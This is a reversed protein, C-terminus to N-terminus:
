VKSSAIDYYQLLIEDETLLNQPIRDGVLIIDAFNKDSYCQKFGARVAEVRVDKLKGRPKRCVELYLKFEKLLAKTRLKELDVDDEINALRWTGNENQIFNEELLVNLGPIQDGKRIGNLAKIFNPYIDQYTQPNNRLENKLWEIGNAEDSVMIGMPVFDPAKLKKEEYEAAQTATFFMGDREAYREHLGQQFEQADMPIAFGKQVYYSILRDFLIKPSREVVSTTANGKEIHVPLHLLHEDIFDWVNEKSGGTQFFKDTLKDSPKYCTIVLDQKVATTTTVAKFSGQKKDLAAVNAVIFGVGQLANQISNWVSASTNSFEMTLWKGPKLIRYFEKFSRNMLQQYEFINKNQGQIDVIAETKENTFVRLTNENIINLQSYMLNAGFPPDVFVYDISNDQLALKTASENSILGNGRAGYDIADFSNVKRRLVNFPNQEIYLSPIYLTGSLSGGKRDPKFKWMKSVNLMTSTLLSLLYTDNKMQEYIYSLILLNRHTYYNHAYLIGRNDNRRAESGTPMRTIKLSTPVESLCKSYIDFDFNSADIEGRKDGSYNVRVIEFVSQQIVENLINDYSTSLNQELKNKKLAIGCSPCFFESNIINGGNHVSEKWLNIKSKCHPCIFTESWIYYNVDVKQGNVYSKYLWGYKKEAKDIISLARKKWLKMNYDCTYTAAIHTAVPSLDSCIGHRVGVKAKKEKLADVDKKSGCLNAAVGTMGTGAFGDFVIDGPQTYHLIYRMIAPHPVKTHYSHAMYIPNNKGESVDSAYPEKVEFNAKRKGERQLEKKEEEWQAIFDNLWPNPCATYYPPDSLNIIDDDEGIPFGEIKRLEPLRRRLEERFYQRREEDNKFTLGFVTVPGQEVQEKPNLQDLYDDSFLKDSAM